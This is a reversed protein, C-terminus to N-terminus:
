WGDDGSYDGGGGGSSSGMDSGGDLGGGIDGMGSSWGGGAKGHSMSGGGIDGGVGAGWGGEDTGLGGFSGTDAFGGGSGRGGSGFDSSYDLGLSKDISRMSSAYDSLFGLENMTRKSTKDTIGVNGLYGRIDAAYDLGMRNGIAGTLSDMPSSLPNSLGREYGRGVQRGGFYGYSDELADKIQEDERVGMLDDMADAAFPAAFGGVLGGIPGAIATGILGGVANITTSTPVGQSAALANSALGVVSAPSIAGTIGLPIADAGLGLALGAGLNTLGGIAASKAASEITKGVDPDTNLNPGVVGATMSPQNTKSTQRSDGVRTDGTREPTTPAKKETPKQQEKSYYELRKQVDSYTEKKPQQQSASFFSGVYPSVLSNLGYAAWPSYGFDM